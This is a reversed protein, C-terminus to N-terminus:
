DEDDDNFKFPNKADSTEDIDAKEPKKESKKEKKPEDEKESKRESKKELSDGKEEKANEKKWQKYAKYKKVTKEKPAFIREKDISSFGDENNSVALRCVAGVLDKIDFKDDTIDLDLSSALIELMNKDKSSFAGEDNLWLTCKISKGLSTEIVNGDDDKKGAECVKDDFIEMWLEYLDYGKRNFKEIKTVVGGDYTEAEDLTFKKGQSFKIGM